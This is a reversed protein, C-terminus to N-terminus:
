LYHFLGKEKVKNHLPNLPPKTASGYKQDETKYLLNKEAITPLQLKRPVYNNEKFRSNNRRSPSWNYYHHELM